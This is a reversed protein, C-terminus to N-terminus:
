DIIICNEETNVTLNCANVGCWAVGSFSAEERWQLKTEIEIAKHERNIYTPLM